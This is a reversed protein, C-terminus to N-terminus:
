NAEETNEDDEDEEFYGIHGAFKTKVIAVTMQRWNSVHLRCIDARTSARELCRTLKSEPWVKGAKEFLVPSITAQPARQRLFIRRLPQVYVLYDLLLNSVPDAVFRINDRLKGTQQQSKDYQLHIMVQKHRITIHRPRQTNRWTM